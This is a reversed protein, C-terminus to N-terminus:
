QQNYLGETYAICLVSCINSGFSFKISLVINSSNKKAINKRSYIIDM